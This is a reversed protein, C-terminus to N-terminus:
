CLGCYGRLLSYAMFLFRKVRARNGPAKSNAAPANAAGGGSCGIARSGSFSCDVDVSPWIAGRSSCDVVDEVVSGVSCGDVAASWVFGVACDSSGPVDVLAEVACGGSGSFADSCE